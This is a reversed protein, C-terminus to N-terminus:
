ITLCTFMITGEEKFSRRELVEMTKTRNWPKSEDRNSKWTISPAGDKKPGNFIKRQRTPAMTNKSLIKKKLNFDGRLMKEAIAFNILRHCDESEHPLGCCGCRVASPNDCIKNVFNDEAIDLLEDDLAM